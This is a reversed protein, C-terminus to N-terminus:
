KSPLFHRSVVTKSSGYRLDQAPRYRFMLQRMEAGFRSVYGYGDM